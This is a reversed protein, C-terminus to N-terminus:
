WKIAHAIKHGSEQIADHPLGGAQLPREPRRKSGQPTPTWSARHGAQHQGEQHGEHRGTAAARFGLTGFDEGHALDGQGVPLLNAGFDFHVVQIHLFAHHEPIGEGAAAAHEEDM